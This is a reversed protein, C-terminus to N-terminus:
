SQLCQKKELRSAKEKEHRTLKVLIELLINLLLSQLPFRQRMGTGSLSTTLRESNLIINATAKDLHAKDPQPFERRTRTQQINKYHFTNCQTLHTKYM